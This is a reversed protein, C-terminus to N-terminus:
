GLRRALGEGAEEPVLLLDVVDGEGGVAEEDGAGAPVVVDLEPVRSVSFEDRRQPAVDPGHVHRAEAGVAPQEHAPALVRRELHPLYPRRLQLLIQRPMLVLHVRDIPTRIPALDRAPPLVLRHPNPPM